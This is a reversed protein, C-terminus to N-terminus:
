AVGDRDGRAMLDRIARQLWEDWQAIFDADLRRSLFDGRAPL